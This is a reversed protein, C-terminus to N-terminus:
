NRRGYLLINYLYPGVIVILIFISSFIDNNDFIDDNDSHAIDPDTQGIIFEADCFNNLFAIFYQM